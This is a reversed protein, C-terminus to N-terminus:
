ILIQRKDTYESDCYLKRGAKQNKEVITVSDGNGASFIGAMLGAAGAGIIITKKNSM